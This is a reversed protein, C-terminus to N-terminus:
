LEAYAKIAELTTKVTVGDGYFSKTYHTDDVITKVTFMAQRPIEYEMVKEDNENGELKTNLSTKVGKYEIALTIDYNKNKGPDFEIVKLKNYRQSKAWDFNGVFDIQRIKGTSIEDRAIKMQATSNVLVENQYVNPLFWYIIYESGGNLWDDHQKKSQITNAVLECVNSSATHSSTIKRPVYSTNKYDGTKLCIIDNLSVDSDNIVWVPNEKAYAEGVIIKEINGTEQDIKFAYTKDDEIYQNEGGNNLVVVPVSTGDWNASYPWYIEINNFVFDENSAASKVTTQIGSLLTSKILLQKDSLSKTMVGGKFVEDLYVSEELGADFSSITEDFMASVFAEDLSAKLLAEVVADQKISPEDIFSMNNDNQNCSMLSVTFASVILATKIKNFMTNKNNIFEKCLYPM